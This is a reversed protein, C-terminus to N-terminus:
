AFHEVVDVHPEGVQATAAQRTWRQVTAVMENMQFPKQLFAIAGSGDFHAADYGSMLVIPIHATASDGRLREIVELGDLGPLCSDCLILSPLMAQAQHLGEAGNAALVPRFKAQALFCGILEAISHDDEIVLVISANQNM